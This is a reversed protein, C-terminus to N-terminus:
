ASAGASGNEDVDLVLKRGFVKQFMDAKKPAAALELLVSGKATLELEVAQDKLTADVSTVLQRHQRDLVDAVRLLAACKLVGDQVTEPLSTFETHRPLPPSKRHYRAIV